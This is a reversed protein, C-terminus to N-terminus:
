KGFGWLIDGDPQPNSRVVIRKNMGDGITTCGAQAQLVPLSAWGTLKGMPDLPDRPKGDEYWRVFFVPKGYSDKYFNLQTADDVGVSRWDDSVDNIAIFLLAAAQDGPIATSSVPVNVFRSLPALVLVDSGSGDTIRFGQRAEAFSEPFEIRLYAYCLVATARDQDGGCYQLTSYRYPSKKAREITETLRRRVVSIEM